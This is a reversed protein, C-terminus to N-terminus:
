AVPTEVSRTILKTLLNDGPGIDPHIMYAAPWLEDSLLELSTKFRGPHEGSNFVGRIYTGIDPRYCVTAEKIMQRPREGLICVAAQDPLLLGDGHGTALLLLCAPCFTVFTIGAMSPHISSSPSSAMKRKECTPSPFAQMPLSTVSAVRTIYPQRLSPLPSASSYPTLAMSSGSSGSQVDDREKDRQKALMTALVGYLYYLETFLTITFNMRTEPNQLDMGEYSPGAPVLGTPDQPDLARLDCLRDVIHAVTAFYTIGYSLGYIKSRMDPPLHEEIHELQEQTLASLNRRRQRNRAGLSQPAYGMFKKRKSVQASWAPSTQRAGDTDNNHVIMQTDKITLGSVRCVLLDDFATNGHLIVARTRAHRTSVSADYDTWLERVLLHEKIIETMGAGTYEEHSDPCLHLLGTRICMFVDQLILRGGSQTAPYHRMWLRRESETLTSRYRWDLLVVLWGDHFDMGHSVLFHPDDVGDPMRYVYATTRVFTCADETCIHSQRAQHELSGAEVHSPSPGTYACQLELAMRIPTKKWSAM